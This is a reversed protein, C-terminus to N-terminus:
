IPKTGRCYPFKSCGYFKGRKGNRLIMKSRCRPCDKDSLVPAPRDEKIRRSSNKCEKCFRRYGSILTPDKFDVLDRINNCKPCEKKDGNQLGEITNQIGNLVSNNLSRFNKILGYIRENFTAIPNSGINFKNIRLFKYGYSELIKQRYVDDESYYDTYNFENVQDIDNFHEKFGDYEIIIKHENKHDDKYVLLFDVKYHPHKYTRDLQKLYKGIEFQPFFEINDKNNKWFDTQYFWNLVEPEMKSKQDVESVDHEKKAEELTFYYHRLADGISGTFEDLPKSLVFHITEKARSFGVNLRQVKIKGDEETDISNLDKIFVGWLKDINKNAVMSYFIIDREEGQCTDFTM